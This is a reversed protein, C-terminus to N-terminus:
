ALLMSAGVEPPLARESSEGCCRGHVGGLQILAHVPLNEFPKRCFFAVSSVLLTSTFDAAGFSKFLHSRDWSCRCMRPGDASPM